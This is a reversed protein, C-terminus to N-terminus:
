SHCTYCAQARMRFTNFLCQGGSHSFHSLVNCNNLRAMTIESIVMELFASFTSFVGFKDPSFGFGAAASYNGREMIGSPVFVEPHKQHIVKLGTSGELDAPYNNTMSMENLLSVLMSDIVMVKKAAEEKSLGDLVLNVAEGFVVRNAGVEKTSGTYLYPNPRPKIDDYINKFHSLGRKEFYKIASKVPIVDHGHSSGEIDPIGPAM